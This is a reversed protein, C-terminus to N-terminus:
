VSWIHSRMQLYTLMAVDISINTRRVQTEAVAVHQQSRRYYHDSDVEFHHKYVNRSKKPRYPRLQEGSPEAYLSYGEFHGVSKGHRAKAYM